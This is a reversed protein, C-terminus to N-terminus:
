WSFTISLLCLISIIICKTKWCANSEIGCSLQKYIFALAYLNVEGIMPVPESGTAMEKMHSEQLLGVPPMNSGETNEVDKSFIKVILWPIDKTTM